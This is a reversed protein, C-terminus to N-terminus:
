DFRRVTKAPVGVVECRGKTNKIVCSGAWIHTEDGITKGQVIQSGTGVEILNGLTCAGSINANPNLTNFDGLTSDHAVTCNFNILNQNGIKVDVTLIAGACIVNGEGMAVSDSLTASPDILNPFHVHPNKKYLEYLFKRREMSGMAIVVDLDETAETVFSDDGVVDEGPEIDIYGLIIWTPNVANIREALWKTEKGAGGTGAIVLNRM